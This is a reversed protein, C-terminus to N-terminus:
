RAATVIRRAGVFRDRFYGRSLSDYRVARRSTSAHIFRGKGAYIGVHSVHGRGNGFFVLDGAQLATPQVPQGVRFQQASTRPLQIDHKRYVSVVLGSCDLGDRDLGGYRYPVGLYSEATAVVSRIPALSARPSAEIAGPASPPADTPDWRAPVTDHPPAACGAALVVIAWAPWFRNM